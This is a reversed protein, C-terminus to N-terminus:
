WRMKIFEDQYSKLTNRKHTEQQYCFNKQNWLPTIHCLINSHSPNTITYKSNDFIQSLCSSGNWSPTLSSDKDKLHRINLVDSKTHKLSYKIEVVSVSKTCPVVSYAQRTSFSKNQVKREHCQTPLFLPHYCFEQFRSRLLISLSLKAMSLTLQLGCLYM